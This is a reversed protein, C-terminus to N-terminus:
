DDARSSKPVLRLHYRKYLLFAAVSGILLVGILSGIVAYIMIKNAREDDQKLVNVTTNMYVVPAVLPTTNKSTIVPM